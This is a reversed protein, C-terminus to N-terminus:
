GGIWSPPLVSNRQGCLRALRGIVPPMASKEETDFYRVIHAVREEPTTGPVDESVAIVQLFCPCAQEAKHSAGAFLQKQTLTAAYDPAQRKLTEVRHDVVDALCIEMFATGAESKPPKEALAPAAILALALAARM